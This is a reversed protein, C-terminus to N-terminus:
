FAVRRARKIRALAVVAGALASAIVMVVPFLVLM